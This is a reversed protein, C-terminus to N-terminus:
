IIRCWVCPSISNVKHTNTNTHWSFLSLAINFLIGSWMYVYHMQQVSSIIITALNSICGRRHDQFRQKDQWIFHDTKLEVLSPHTMGPCMASVTSSYISPYVKSVSSVDRSADPQTFDFCGSAILCATCELSHGEMQWPWETHYISM